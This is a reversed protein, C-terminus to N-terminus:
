RLHLLLLAKYFIYYLYNTCPDIQSLTSRPTIAIFPYEVSLDESSSGWCWHLGTDYEAKQLHPKSSQLTYLRCIELRFRCPLMEIKPWFCRLFKHRILQNNSKLLCKRVQLCVFLGGVVWEYFGLFVFCIQFLFKGHFLHFFFLM